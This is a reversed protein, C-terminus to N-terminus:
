ERIVIALFAADAAGAARVAKLREIKGRGPKSGTEELSV